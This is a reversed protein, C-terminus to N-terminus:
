GFSEVFSKKSDPTFNRSDGETFVPTEDPSNIGSREHSLVESGNVNEDTSFGHRSEYGTYNSEHNQIKRKKRPHKRGPADRVNGSGEGFYGETIEGTLETNEADNWNDM